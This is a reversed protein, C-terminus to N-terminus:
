APIQQEGGGREIERAKARYTQAIQILEDRTYNRPENDAELAEVAALGISAILNRRFAQQVTKRKKAYKGSGANCSKCQLWINMPEYRLNAHAGVSLYHGADWVGGPRWGDAAQVEEQSRKCSICGSGKQLEELRRARNIAAQAKKQLEGYTVVAAKRSATKERDLRKAVKAASQKGRGQKAWAIACAPSCVVQMSRVPDFKAGCAKCTKM